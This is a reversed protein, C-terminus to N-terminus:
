TLLDRGVRLFLTSPSQPHACMASKFARQAAVLSHTLDFGAVSREGSIWRSRTPQPRRLIYALWIRPCGDEATASGGQREMQNDHSSLTSELRERLVGRKFLRRTLLCDLFGEWISDDATM